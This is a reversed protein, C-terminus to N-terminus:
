YEACMGEFVPHENMYAYWEDVNRSVRINYARVNGGFCPAKRSNWNKDPVSWDGYKSHLLMMYNDPVRCKFKGFSESILKTPSPYRYVCWGLYNDLRYLGGDKARSPLFFDVSLLRYRLTFESCVGDFLIMRSFRFGRRILEEYFIKINHSGPLISYDIDEDNRIFGSERVMGLLTGFDIHCDVSCKIAADEIERLASRGVLQLLYRRWHLRRM